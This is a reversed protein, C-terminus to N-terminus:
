HWQFKRVTEFFKTVNEEPTNPLVGHGLNMIHGRPGAKQIIERTREEILEPTGLLIAPDLNGQISVHSGMRERAKGIDVTWDLSIVDFGVSAMRELYHSGQSIFLIIPTDPYHSKVQELVRKQYPLAFIEYDIPSLQGAWSDFIQIAQAGSEIQYCCYIALNHSFKELLQHLLEPETFAMKKIASYSKSNGGEVCYTALTYPAAVFGLVTAEDSVAERLAKLTERVFPTSREPQLEHVREIDEKTRLPREIVPGKDPIDFAVGMGPLPTLIDSFLIVGDPRFVRWPQLSIEIALEPNESRERFSPHKKALEQYAKMYRGAQRMMWVPPREVPLGKAARLLLPLQAQNLADEKAGKLQDSTATMSVQVLRKKRHLLFFSSQRFCLPCYNKSHLGGKSLFPSYTQNIFLLWM